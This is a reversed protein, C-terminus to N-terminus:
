KPAEWDTISAYNNGMFTSLKLQDIENNPWLVSLYHLLFDCAILYTPPCSKVPHVEPCYQEFTAPGELLFTAVLAPRAVKLITKEDLGSNHKSLYDLVDLLGALAAKSVLETEAKRLGQPNMSTKWGSEPSDFWRNFAVRMLNCQLHFMEIGVLWVSTEGSEREEATLKPLVDEIATVQANM